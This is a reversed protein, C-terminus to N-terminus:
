MLKVEEHIALRKLVNKSKLLSELCHVVSGWRTPVLIKLTCIQGMEKQLETFNARLIQSKNIEEVITKCTDVMDKVSKLKTIDGIILHLTHAACTYVAIHSYKEKLISTANVMVSANDTVVGGFKEIGVETMVDEMKTAMYEATHRETKTGLTKFFFPEPTTVVFNV